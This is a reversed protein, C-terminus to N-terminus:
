NPNLNSGIVTNLFSQGVSSDIQALFIPNNLKVWSKPNFLSSLRTSKQGLLFRVPVYGLVNQIQVLVKTVKM